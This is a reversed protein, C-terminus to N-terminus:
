VGPAEIEGQTVHCSFQELQVKLRGGNLFELCAPLAQCLVLSDGVIYPIFAIMFGKRAQPHKLGLGVLQLGSIGDIIQKHVTVYYCHTSQVISIYQGAGAIAPLGVCTNASSIGELAM